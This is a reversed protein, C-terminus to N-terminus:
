FFHEKDNEPIDNGMNGGWFDICKVQGKFVFCKEESPNNEISM